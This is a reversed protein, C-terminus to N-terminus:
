EQVTKEGASVSANLKELKALRERVQDTNKARPALELYTRTEVVAMDYNNKRAYIEAMLLHLQPFKTFLDIHEAKLGSKEAAEFKKLKYNAVANYFYAEAYSSSDLDLVYGPVHHLPDLDLVHDTFALLETWNEAEFAMAALSLYPPLFRSDSTTAQTFATRAADKQQEKQLVTGLQFWANTYGPYIEVAKGFYKQADPLKGKRAAEVGKEYARIADKPAKYASASLTVGEIKERRQVVISGVNISSMGDLDVLNIVNSSFGAVQARLECNALERRPIGMESNKNSLSQQSPGGGSADLMSDARSGLQMSFEGGPSTHVQQRVKAGCVREVVADMPLSTGDTTTVRGQLFLVFNERPEGPQPNVTGPNPNRSPPPSPPPTPGPSKQAWACPALLAATLALKLFSRMGDKVLTNV